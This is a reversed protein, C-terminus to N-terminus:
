GCLHILARAGVGDEASVAGQAPGKVVEHPLSPRERKFVFIPCDRFVYGYEAWQRLRNRRDYSRYRRHEIRVQVINGELVFGKVRGSAQQVEAVLWPSKSWTQRVAPFKRSPRVRM